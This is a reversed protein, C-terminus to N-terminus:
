AEEMEIHASNGSRKVSKIKFSTNREFVVENDAKYQGLNFVTRGRKGSAKISYTVNTSPAGSEATFAFNVGSSLYQPFKITKGAAYDSLFSDLQSKSVEIGRQVTGKYAPLKKLAVDLDRIYQKMQPSLPKKGEADYRIAYNPTEGSAYRDIQAMDKKTVGSLFAPSDLFENAKEVSSFVRPAGGGCSRQKERAAVKRWVM